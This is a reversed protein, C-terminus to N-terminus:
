KIYTLNSPKHHKVDSEVINRNYRPTLKIQPLFQLVRLFGAVQRLDSVFRTTNLAHVPNSSVVKTTIPVSQVKDCLHQISYVEDHVPNFFKIVYRTDLVGRRSPIQVSLTLPSLCQNCLYNYIWSGICDPDRGSRLHQFIIRKHHHQISYV